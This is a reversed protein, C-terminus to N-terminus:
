GLFPPVFFMQYWISYHWCGDLRVITTTIVGEGMIPSPDPTLTNLEARYLIDVVIFIDVLPSPM